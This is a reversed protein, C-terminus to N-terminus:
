SSQTCCPSFESRAPPRILHTLVSDTRVFKFAHYMVKVLVSVKRIELFRTEPFLLDTPHVTHFHRQHHIGTVPVSESLLPRWVVVLVSRFFFLKINRDGMVVYQKNELALDRSGIAIFCDHFAFESRDYQDGIIILFTISVGFCTVLISAAALQQARRGVTTMLVDHYTTDGKVDSCYALVMMTISLSFM